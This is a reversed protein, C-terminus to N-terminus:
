EQVAATRRFRIKRVFSRGPKEILHYLIVSSVFVAALYVLIVGWGAQGDDPILLFKVWDKVFYHFLYTSYSIVGLYVFVPNNFLRPWILRPDSLGLILMVFGAPLLMFDPLDLFVTMLVTAAFGALYVPWLKITWHRTVLFFKCAVMGLAFQIVCRVLGYKQINQGISDTGFSWFLLYIVLAIAVIAPVLFRKSRLCGQVLLVLFPFVLYAFWETSISWAPINWALTESWGWNQVLFIMAVYYTPDYRGGIVGDSSFLHIALPNVLFILCVTLHLPYIRAFRAVMFKRFGDLTLQEFFRAYNLFLVFGSLIFFLDVALYGRAIFDSFWTPVLPHFYLHFHYLVVWWAAVGRLGTLPMIEPISKKNPM